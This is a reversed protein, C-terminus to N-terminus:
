PEGAKRQREQEAIVKQRFTKALETPTTRQLPKFPEPLVLAQWWQEQPFPWPKNRFKGPDQIVWDDSFWGRKAKSLDIKPDVIPTPRRGNLSVLSLAQISTGPFRDAMEIATLRILDPDRQARSLQYPTLVASAPVFEAEGSEKHTVLFVTLAKKNRLMMRWAFRHGRENWSPDGPLVWPRVPLLLQFVVYAGVFWLGTRGWFGKPVHSKRKSDPSPPPFGVRMMISSAASPPFFIILTGLMFWPFVGIHLITANTLHFGASMLVALWRTWKNYLLLPVVMADYLIGGYSITWKAIDTTLYQGIYAMHAQNGLLIGAPQGALWDWNLKAIAGFVYPMGLQFRLFWLQWKAFTSQPKELGIVCDISYRNAAPFFALVAAACSLLYYHNVYIQREVLLVYAISFSCIVASARTLFGAVLCAAAIKTILFHWYIGDGPWLGVWKFASYKFLFLPDQFILKYNPIKQTVDLYGSAWIYIAAGVAIRLWVLMASDVPDFMRVRIPRSEESSETM